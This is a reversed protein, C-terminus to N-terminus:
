SRGFQKKIVPLMACTGFVAVPYAEQKIAKILDEEYRFPIGAEKLVKQQEDTFRYHPNDIRSLVIDHGASSLAKAVGPYDKDDPIALCCVAKKIGLEDLVETAGSISARNICCDILIFPERSIVSLRGFWRLSRLAARLREYDEASDLFAEGTMDEAAALALALNRCQVSGMLSIKLDNYERRSTSVACSMGDKLYRVGSVDFDRGFLKLPVGEEEAKKIIIDRVRDEQWGCYVGKMGRRIVSSKDYAIEELTSGLERTHELFITNIIGYSSPVNKVDDYRVGKGHEYIDYDTNHASFFTEAVATEIGIPSIFEGKSPDCKIGDFLPKLGSVIDSFESDTICEGCARFRENFREIHPGTMLGCRGYLSLISSLIYAASGKGKSGTVAVTTTGDFLDEIIKKTLGPRRKMRDPMDYSLFPLARMYSAYIYDEAEQRTM